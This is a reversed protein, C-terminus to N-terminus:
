NNRTWVLTCRQNSAGTEAIENLRIRRCPPCMAGHSRRDREWTRGCGECTGTFKMTIKATHNVASPNALGLERAKSAWVGDHHHGRTLAHAVEHQITGLVQEWDNQQMYRPQYEITKTSYRCRGLARTMKPNFRVHWGTLNNETLLKFTADRVQKKRPQKVHAM